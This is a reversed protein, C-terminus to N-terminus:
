SATPATLLDGKINVITTDTAPNTFTARIYQKKGVYGVVGTGADSYLVYAGTDGSGDSPTDWTLACTGTGIDITSLTGYGNSTLVVQGSSVSAVLGYTQSNIESAIGAATNVTEPTDWTLGGTGAAAAIASTAGVTDSTVLVQGGSVEATAGVLQANMQEVIQAALTTEGSFTVTQADGGDVTIVSTLGAQNTVPYSTTDIVRGVNIATTFTVTQEAGTDVTIKETKTAQATVPYTTTDTATGQTGATTTGNTIVGDDDGVILSKGPVVDADSLSSDDGHVLQVRTTAKSLFLYTNSQGGSTNIIEDNVVTIDAQIRTALDKNM